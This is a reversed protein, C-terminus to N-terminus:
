QVAVIMMACAATLYVLSYRFMLNAWKIVDATWLGWLALVLYVAGLIAAAALYLKNVAGVGYLLFSIPVMAATYRIMQRKTEEFGRVVPLMPVGAARYEEVRKIALALFHPPQWLFLLLFLVWAGVDLTGTVATWGILPPAAGAVGGVVTNLTTTRKLWMTYVVVYTFLGAFGMLAALPNLGLGLISLGAASLILGFALARAAPIRGEALPRKATRSMLPDIDRDVWNNLTAGGAVVLATGVLTMATVYLDPHGKSALWLGTFATWLNAATIGVKTLSVYDKWSGGSMDPSEQASERRVQTSTSSRYAVPRDM